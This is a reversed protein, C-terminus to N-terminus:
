DTRQFILVGFACHVGKQDSSGSGTARLGKWHWFTQCLASHQGRVRSGWGTQWLGQRRIYGAGEELPELGPGMASWVRTATVTWRRWVAGRLVGGESRRRELPWVHEADRKRRSGSRTRLRSDHFTGSERWATKKEQSRRRTTRLGTERPAPSGRLLQRPSKAVSRRGMTVAGPAQDSSAGPLSHFAGRQGVAPEGHFRRLGM